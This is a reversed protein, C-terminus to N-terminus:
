SDRDKVLTFSWPNAKPRVWRVEERGAPLSPGLPSLVEALPPDWRDEAM